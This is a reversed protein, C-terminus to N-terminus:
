RDGTWAAGIQLSLWTQADGDGAALAYNYKVLFLFGIGYDIRIILGLEPAFGLHWNAEKFDAEPDKATLTIRYAGLGIGAYPIFTESGRFYYHTTALLPLADINRKQVTEGQRKIDQAFAQWNLSLGFTYSERVFKRAEFSFGLYSTKNLFDKTHGQPLGLSYTLGLFANQAQLSLGLLLLL